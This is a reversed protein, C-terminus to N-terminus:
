RNVLENIWDYTEQLGDRLTISPQMGLVRSCLTNDSTRGRVGVPGDGTYRVTLGLKGSIQIILNALYDISVM